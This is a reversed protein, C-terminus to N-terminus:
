KVPEITITHTVPQAADRDQSAGADIKKEIAADIKAIADGLNGLAPAQQNVPFYFNKILATEREQKERIAQEVAAFPKSFPNDDMFEAALNVGKALDAASFEKSQGGWTVKVRDAGPNTVVLMFRNLDDNFPFFDVIARTSIGKPDGYFCFPYRTSEVTVAGGDMSVIKHGDTAQAKNAALDVSITGINGDVGMAKLLAYAMVLHGNPGPHVGDPGAFVYADGYKAKAKAMATM